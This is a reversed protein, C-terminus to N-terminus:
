DMQAASSSSPAASTGTQYKFLWRQIYFRRENTLLPWLLRLAPRYFTNDALATSKEAVLKASDDGMATRLSAYIARQMAQCLLARSPLQGPDQSYIWAVDNPPIEEALRTCLAAVLGELETKQEPPLFGGVSELMHDTPDNEHKRWFERLRAAAQRIPMTSKFVRDLYEACLQRVLVTQFSQRKLAFHHERQLEEPPTWAPYIAPGSPADDDSAPSAMHQDNDEDHESDAIDSSDLSPLSSSRESTDLSSSEVPSRPM